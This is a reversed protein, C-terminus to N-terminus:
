RGAPKVRLRAIRSTVFGQDNTVVVCYRGANTFLVRRIVLTSTSSQYVNKGNKLTVANRCWAYKLSGPGRAVVRFRINSAAPITASAPNVLIMPIFPHVTLLAPASTTSGGLNTAVARFQDGSMALTANSITLKPTTAGAYARSNALDAFDATGATKRQWQWTGDTDTGASFVPRAGAKVVQSAPQIIIVPVATTVTLLASTSSTSGGVNTAVVRFQDGSMEATSNLITLAATTVGSYLGTDSLSTYYLAGFAERQWLFTANGDAAVNFSAGTGASSAENAPQLSFVPPATTVSLAASTSLTSGSLNTAVVRFQDGAMALTADSVTLTASTVNAYAGTNTLNAYSGTGAAQRQWQLVAGGNAAVTFTAATGTTVAQNAPQLDFTPPIPVVQGLSNYMLGGTWDSAAPGGRANLVTLDLTVGAKALARGNGTINNGFTISTGALYNGLVQNNAGLVVASGAVWFIGDDRGGRTGTNTVIVASNVATILATGIQFVWCANNQGQADLTLVGNLAAAADFKYVGPPLTLGGLNTNSLNVQAAMGALGVEAKILDLRAQNTVNGTALIKGGGALVAPPFGTIGTTAGPALGVNGSSITTGAVGTSTIATGGLVAFNGASLLISQGFGTAPVGSLVALAAVWLAIRYKIDM